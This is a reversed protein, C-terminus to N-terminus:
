TLSRRGTARVVVAVAPVVVSDSGSNESTGRAVAVCGFATVRTGRMTGVVSTVWRGTEVAVVLISRVVTSTSPSGGGRTHGAADFVRRAERRIVMQVAVVVVRFGFVSSGEMIVGLRTKRESSEATGSMRRGGVSVLMPRGAATGNETRQAVHAQETAIRHGVAGVSRTRARGRMVASVTSVAVTM